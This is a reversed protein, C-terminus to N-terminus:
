MRTRVHPRLMKSPENRDAVRADENEDSPRLSERRTATATATWHSRKRLGYTALQPRRSLHDRRRGRDAGRRQPTARCAGPEFRLIEDVYESIRTRQARLRALKAPV